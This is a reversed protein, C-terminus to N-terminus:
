SESWRKLRPVSFYLIQFFENGFVGPMKSGCFVVIRAADLVEIISGLVSGTDHHIPLEAM